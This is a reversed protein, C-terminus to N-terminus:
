QCVPTYLVLEASDLVVAELNDSICLPQPSIPTSHSLYPNISYLSPHRRRPRRWRPRRWRPRRRRPRTLRPRRRRPHRRRPHRRRPGVRGIVSGGSTGGDPGGGGPSGGGPSGLPPFPPFKGPLLHKSYSVKRVIQVHLRAM